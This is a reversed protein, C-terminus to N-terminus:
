MKTGDKTFTVLLGEWKMTKVRVASKRNLSRKNPKASAQAQLRDTLSRRAREGHERAPQRKDDWRREKQNKAGGERKKKEGRRGRKGATPWFYGRAYWDDVPTLHMGPSSHTHTKVCVTGQHERHSPHAMKCILPEAKVRGRDPENWGRGAWKSCCMTAIKPYKKIDRGRNKWGHRRKSWNNSGLLPLFHM